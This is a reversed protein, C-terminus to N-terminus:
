KPMNTPLLINKQAGVLHMAMNTAALHLDVSLIHASASVPLQIPAPSSPSLPLNSAGSLRLTTSFRKVWWSVWWMGSSDCLERTRVKWEELLRPSALLLTAMAEWDQSNRAVAQASDDVAIPVCCCCRM